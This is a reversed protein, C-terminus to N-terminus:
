RPHSSFVSWLGKWFRFQRSDISSDDSPSSSFFFFKSSSIRHGRKIQLYHNKNRCRFRNSKKSQSTFFDYENENVTAGQQQKSVPNSRGLYMTRRRTSMQAGVVGVQNRIPSIENFLKAVLSLLQTLASLM